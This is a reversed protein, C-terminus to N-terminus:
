ETVKILQMPVVAETVPVREHPLPDLEVLPVCANRVLDGYTEVLWPIHDRFLRGGSHRDFKWLPTDVAVVRGFRYGALSLATGEVLMVRDNVALDHPETFIRVAEADHTV